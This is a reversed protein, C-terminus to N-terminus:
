IRRPARGKGHRGGPKPEEHRKQRGLPAVPAFVRLVGRVQLQNLPLKLQALGSLHPGPVLGPVLRRLQHRLEGRRLEVLQQSALMERHRALRIRAVVHAVDRPHWPQAQRRQLHLVGALAEAGRLGLGSAGGGGEGAHQGQGGSPVFLQHLEDGCGDGRLELAFAGVHHQAGGDVHMADRRPAPVELVEGPLIPVQAGSQCSGVHFSDLVLAHHSHGLVKGEVLLLRFTHEHVRMCRLAALPLQIIRGEPCSYLCAHAGDHAGVVLHIAGICAM